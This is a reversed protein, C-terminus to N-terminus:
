KGKGTENNHLVVRALLKPCAGQELIHEHEESKPNEEREELPPEHLRMRGTKKTKEEKRLRSPRPNEESIQSTAETAM